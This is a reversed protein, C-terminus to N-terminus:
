IDQDVGAPKGKEGNGCRSATRAFESLFSWDGAKGYGGEAPAPFRVREGSIWQNDSMETGVLHIFYRDADRKLILGTQWDGDINVVVESACPLEEGPERHRTGALIALMDDTSLGRDLMQQKIAHDLRLKNVTTWAGAWIGVLSILVVAGIGILSISLGVLQASSLEAVEAFLLGTM